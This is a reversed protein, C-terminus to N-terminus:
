SHLEILTNVIYEVDAAAIDQHIPLALLKDKLYCADPFDKWSLEPHYGKWWARADIGLQNLIL